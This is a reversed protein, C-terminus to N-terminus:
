KAPVAILTDDTSGIDSGGTQPAGDKTYAGGSGWKASTVDPAWMDVHLAAGRQNGGPIGSKTFGDSDTGGQIRGGSMTFVAGVAGDSGVRVGGGNAENKEEVIVRNREPGAAQAHLPKFAALATAAGAIEAAPIEWETGHATIEAAFNDGLRDPRCGAPAPLRRAKVDYVEQFNLCSSLSREDSSKSGTVLCKNDDVVPRNGTVLLRNSTVFPRNGTVM